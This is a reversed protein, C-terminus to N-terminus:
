QLVANAATKSDLFIHRDHPVAANKTGYFLAYLTQLDM